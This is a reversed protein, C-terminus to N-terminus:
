PNQDAPDATDLLAFIVWLFTFYHFARKQPGFAEGTAQVGQLAQM